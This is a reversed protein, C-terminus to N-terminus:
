LSCEKWSGEKDRFEQCTLGSPCECTQACSIGCHTQYIVGSVSICAYGKPCNGVDPCAEGVHTGDDTIPSCDGGGGTGAAGGAGGAAEGGGVGGAGGVGAGVSTAANSAGGAGSASTSADASTASTAAENQTVDLTSGCGAIGLAVLSSLLKVTQM